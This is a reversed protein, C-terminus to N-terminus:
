KAGEVPRVLQQSNYNYPQGDTSETAVRVCLLIINNIYIHIIYIVYLEYLYM